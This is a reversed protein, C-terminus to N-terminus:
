YNKKWIWKMYGKDDYTKRVTRKASPLLLLRKYLLRASLLVPCSLQLWWWATFHAGAAPLDCLQLQLSLASSQDLNGFNFTYKAGSVRKMIYNLQLSCNKPFSQHHLNWVTNIFRCWPQSFLTRSCASQLFSRAEDSVFISGRRSGCANYRADPYRFYEGSTFAMYTGPFGGLLLSLPWIIYAGFPHRTITRLLFFPSPGNRFFETACNWTASPTTVHEPM